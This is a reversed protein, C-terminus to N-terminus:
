CTECARALAFTRVRSRALRFAHSMAPRKRVAEMGELVQIQGAGYDQDESVHSASDFAADDEQGLPARGAESEAATSSVPATDAPDSM